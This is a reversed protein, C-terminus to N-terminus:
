CVAQEVGYTQDEPEMWIAYQSGENNATEDALNDSM